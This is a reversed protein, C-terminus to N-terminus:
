AGGTRSALATLEEIFEKNGLEPTLSVADDPAAPQGLQEAVLAAARAQVEPASLGAREDVLDAIGTMTARVRGAAADFQEEAEALPVARGTIATAAAALQQEGWGLLVNAEGDTLGARLREDEYLAETARRLRPELDAPQAPRAPPPSHPRRKRRFFGAWLVISM